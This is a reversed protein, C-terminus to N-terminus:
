VVVVSFGGFHFHFLRVRVRDILEDKHAQPVDSWRPYSMDCHHKVIWTLRTTFMNANSCCPATEGNNIKLLVKGHKRLKEFETCKAPGRRRRRQAQNVVPETPIDEGIQCSAPEAEINPSTVLNPETPIDVSTQVRAPEAELNPSPVRNPETSANVGIQVRDPEPRIIPSTVSDPEAVLTTAACPPEWPHSPPQTSDDSSAEDVDEPSHYSSIQAGRPRRARCSYPVLRRGRFARGRSRGRGSAGVVEGRGNM